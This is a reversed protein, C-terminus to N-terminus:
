RLSILTCVLPMIVCEEWSYASLLNNLSCLETKKDWQVTGAVAARYRLSASFPVKSM